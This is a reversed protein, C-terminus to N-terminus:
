FPVPESVKLTYVADTYRGWLSEGDRVKEKIDNDSLLRMTWTVVAFTAANVPFARLITPVLGRYFGVYGELALGQKLCDLSNKYKLSGAIGDIQMRSKIVDIPYVIVWSVIGALGGSLLMASTSVPSNDPTRTLLEYTWFYSGFAPIERLMTINLGRFLGKTGERSYIKRLCDIPGKNGGNSVQLRSKALEMPSCIFSQFFGATAGAIFHSKLSDPNPLYRQTNAYIGFVIANIGAVGVLPSSMGRYVGRAGERAMLHRLCHLTGRYKPNKSDQTQLHVKVTDLPHGVVM